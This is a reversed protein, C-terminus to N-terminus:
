PKWEERYDPHDVFPLALLKLVWPVGVDYVYTVDRPYVGTSDRTVPRAQAIIRRKAECEALVRIAASGSASTFAGGADRARERMHPLSYPSPEYRAAARTNPYGVSAEDEAIRALLFEVLDTM